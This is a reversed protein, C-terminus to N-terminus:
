IIVLIHIVKGPMLNCEDLKEASCEEYKKAFEEPTVKLNLLEVMTSAVDQQVKGGILMSYEPKFTGGFYEIVKQLAEIYVQESDLLLFITSM